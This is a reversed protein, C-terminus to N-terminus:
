ALTDARRAFVWPLLALVLCVVLATWAEAIVPQWEDNVGPIGLRIEQRSRLEFLMFLLGPLFFLAASIIMPTTQPARSGRIAPFMSQERRVLRYHVASGIVWALLLIVVPGAVASLRVLHIWPPTSSAQRQLPSTTTPTLPEAETPDSSDITDEPSGVQATLSSFGLVLLLLLCAIRTPM